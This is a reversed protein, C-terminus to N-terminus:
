TSGLTVSSKLLCHHGVYNSIATLLPFEEPSFPWPIAMTSTFWSHIQYHKFKCKISKSLQISNVCTKFAIYPKYALIVKREGHIVPLLNHSNTAMNWWIIFVQTQTMLLHTVNLNCKVGRKRKEFSSVRKGDNVKMSLIIQTQPPMNNLQRECFPRM